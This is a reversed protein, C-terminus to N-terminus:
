LLLLHTEIFKVMDRTYVEFQFFKYTYKKAHLLNAENQPRAFFRSSNFIVDTFSRPSMARSEIKPQFTYRM